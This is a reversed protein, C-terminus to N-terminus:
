TKFDSHKFELIVASHVVVPPIGSDGSSSPGEPIVSDQGQGTLGAIGGQVDRPTSDLREQLEPLFIRRTKTNSPLHGASTQPFNLESHQQM